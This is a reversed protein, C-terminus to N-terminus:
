ALKKLVLLGSSWPMHRIAYGDVTDAFFTAEDYSRGFTEEIARMVGRQNDWGPEVKGDLRRFWGNGMNTDHFMMVGGQALRPLWARIEALTHLYEHSTDLLVAHTEAPLGRAACFAAFPEGAFAVDDSQVFSWRGRLPDPIAIRSCDVIDISLLLADSAAAAALLARTSIGGRTGLEVILRPRAAVTEFFITALHDRIDSGASTWLGLAEALAPNPTSPYWRQPRWRRVVRQIKISLRRTQTAIRM